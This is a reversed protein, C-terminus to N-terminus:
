QSYATNNHQKFLIFNLNVGGKVIRLRIQNYGENLKLTSTASNNWKSTQALDVLVVQGNLLWEIKAGSEATYRLQVDYKQDGPSSVTYQLWEGEETSSVNFGNTLTDTCSVIDVGDNRYSWGKNWDTRKGTSVWYNGSDKDYYAANLRGLDYDTAYIITTAGLLNQKYPHTVPDNVQRRMADIVDYKIINNSINCDVALQMLAQSAEEKTPKEGKGKWYDIIRQYGPNIKVQLPNNIGIKKLPWWAWGIKNRELLQIADTFWSNSNEGSEGMWIPVNYKDRYDLFNQISGQETSNWYKHFSLVLNDDWLPFFGKYNNGWCNGEIIILHKKDVKRIAATVQKLFQVLPENMEEACGNKDAVNQFGCNPENIVDYGGIWEEDKYREALKQWLAITKQQNAESQWLSPYATDRDSIANDNGQGGPAAHLDLILYIKNSKCWNLLSDTLAFGTKLWTDKGKVPEHQDPLTFLNYHMPLRVSNFGWAALLDIDAKTCHNKLWAQYFKETNEDGALEKIKLKINHQAMAVGSLQLMYPEQLMWGGLGIGRLLVENGNNNVIFKGKARLGQSTASISVLILSLWVLRKM